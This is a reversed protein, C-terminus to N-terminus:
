RLPAHAGSIRPMVEKMLEIFKRLRAPYYSAYPYLLYVPLPAARWEPMLPTLRGQELDQTVIWSSLMAVGVGNLAAKRIAYLSDTSLRPAIDFRCNEGSVSHTLTVENRYFSNLALWPLRVLDGIQTLPAHTALLEPSAVVIRPVEALLVAVVSPDTV